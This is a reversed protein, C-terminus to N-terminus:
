DGTPPPPAARSLWEVIEDSNPSHVGVFRSVVAGAANALEAAERYSAGAALGLAAAASAADGCGTGDGVTGSAVSAAVETVSGDASFVAIGHEGRTIFVADAEMQERLLRGARLVPAPTSLAAGSAATPRDAPPATAGSNTTGAASLAEAENPSVLSAGRFLDINVPKPDVCVPTGRARARAILETPLSLPTLAGKAYDAVLVVDTDDLGARIRDSLREALTPSLPDTTETDIRLLQQRGAIIRMKHSTPRSPDTLVASTDAGRRELDELLRRGLEDAGVVGLVRVRAELGLLVAAVNGAGGPKDARAEETLPMTVVPIPAEPSIRKVNGFVWEDMMLDGVLLVRSGKCDRLLQGARHPTM